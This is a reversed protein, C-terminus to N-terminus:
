LNTLSRDDNKHNNLVREPFEDIIRRIIKFALVTDGELAFNRAKSYLDYYYGSAGKTETSIQETSM